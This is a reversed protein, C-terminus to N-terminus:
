QIVQLYAFIHDILQFRIVYQEPLIREQFICGFAYLVTYTVKLHPTLRQAIVAIPRWQCTLDYTAGPMILVTRQSLSWGPLHLLTDPDDQM